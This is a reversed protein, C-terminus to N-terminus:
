DGTPEAPATGDPRDDEGTTDPDVSAGAAGVGLRDAALAVGAAVGGVVVALFVSAVLVGDVRITAGGAGVAVGGITLWAALIAGLAAGLSGAVAGDIRDLRAAAYAGAPVALAVSVVPVGTLLAAESVLAYPDWTTEVVPPAFAGVLTALLAVGAGVLGYVGAVGAVTGRVTGDDVSEALRALPAGDEATAARDDAAGPRSRTRDSAAGSGRRRGTAEGAVGPGEATGTAAERRRTTAGGADTREADDASRDTEPPTVPDDEDPEVAPEHVYEGLNPREGGDARVPPGDRGTGDSADSM